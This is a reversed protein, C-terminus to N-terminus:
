RLSRDQPPNDIVLAVETGVGEVGEIELRGGARAARERMGSLGYHGPIAETGRATGAPLGAGDDHVRLVFRAPAYSVDISVLRAHGHEIANSVAQQAVHLIESEVALPLAYVQGTVTVNMSVGDYLSTLEELARPLAIRESSRLQWIITRALRRAHGLIRQVQSVKPALEPAAKQVEAEVGELRLGAATFVQALSDHLDRAIRGREELVAALRARAIRARLVFAAAIALAALLGLSVRFSVTQHFLPRLHVPLRVTTGRDPADERFARAELVYRGPSLHAYQVSAATTPESPARDLGLLQYRFRVRHPAEFLAAALRVELYATGPPAEVQAPLDPAFRWRGDIGVGDLQLAPAPRDADFATPDVIAMGTVTTFWLRGDRARLAPTDHRSMVMRSPLGDRADLQLARVRAGPRHAELEARPVRVVGQRGVYWLGGLEDDVLHHVIPDPLGEAPGFRTLRDGRWRLLGGDTGLWLTGDEDEAVAFLVPPRDLGPLAVPSSAGDRVRWLGAGYTAAWLGGARRRALASVATTCPPDDQFIPSRAPCAPGPRSVTEWAPATGSARRQYLQGETTGVWLTGAADEYLTTIRREPKRDPLYVLEVRGDQLRMLHDHYTSMWVTGDRHALVHHPQNPIERKHLFNTVAGDKWRTLGGVSSIWLAGDPGESLAFPTNGPLGHRATFVLVPPLELRALAGGHTTVWIGGERDEMLDRVHNDPLGEVATLTRSTPAGRERLHLAHPTAVWTRGRRDVLVGVIGQRCAAEFGGACSDPAEGATALALWGQQRTPAGPAIPAFAHGDFCHWGSAASTCPRGQRDLILLDLEAASPREPRDFSSREEGRVRLVRDGRLLWVAGEATEVIREVRPGAGPPLIETTGRDGLRLVSGDDGALWLAGDSAGHLANVGATLPGGGPAVPSPVLGTGDFRLLGATTGVWLRGDPTQTVGRVFAGTGYVQVRVQSELSAAAGARAQGLDIALVALAIWFSRPGMTLRTGPCRVVPPAGPGEEEM